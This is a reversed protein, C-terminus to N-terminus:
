CRQLGPGPELGPLQPLAALFPLPEGCPGPGRPVSKGGPEPSLAWIGAKIEATALGTRTRDQSHHLPAQFLSRPLHNIQPIGPLAQPLRLSTSFGLDPTLGTQTIYKSCSLTLSLLPPPFFVKVVAVVVFFAQPPPAAGDGQGPLQQSLQALSCITPNGEKSGEFLDCSWLGKFEAIHDQELLSPFSLSRRKPLSWLWLDERDM